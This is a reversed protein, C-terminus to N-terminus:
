LTFDIKTNEIIIERCINLILNYDIVEIDKITIYDKYGMMLCLKIYPKNDALSFKIMYLDRGDAFYIEGIIENNNLMKKYTQTIKQIVDSYKYM